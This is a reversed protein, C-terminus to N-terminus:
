AGRPGAGQSRRQPGGQPVPRKRRRSDGRPISLGHFGWRRIGRQFLEDPVGLRQTVKARGHHFATDFCAVQILKPRMKAVAKIAALNHPQHLPVLPILQELRSLVDADIRTAKAFDPGGHAVRHGIAVPNLQDGFESRVWEALHAFAEPHGFKGAEGLEPEALTRGKRDKAKFRPATGLGEIQGRASLELQREVVAYISFKLSSSGANLVIIADNM